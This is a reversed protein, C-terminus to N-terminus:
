LSRLTSFAVASQIAPLGPARLWANLPRVPM